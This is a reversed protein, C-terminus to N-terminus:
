ALLIGHRHDGIGDAAHSDVRVVRSRHGFVIPLGVVEARLGAVVREYCIRFRVCSSAIDPMSCSRTVLVLESLTRARADFTDSSEDAQPDELRLPSRERTAVDHPRTDHRVQFPLPDVRLREGSRQRGSM